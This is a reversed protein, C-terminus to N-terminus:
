HANDPGLTRPDTISGTVAAAACAAASALYISASSRGMRAKFNRNATSMVTAGDDPIVGSTGCCAGCGPPTVVAGLASLRALSGDRELTRQVERSAPTVVLQVGPKVGAGARELVGLAAHIDSVRGGTCTGIFVMHVPQGSAEAIDSVHDPAHPRAVKPAISALDLAVERAFRTDRDSTVAGPFISAKAGMEVGMSCIVLRDELSLGAVAPGDFELAQYSAGEAGMLGVLHLAIDKASVSEQWAGTLTVKITEPVRLWVQGTIMAGALDSSGVGTAFANLAGCTVTHSDAGIVLDGSSVLGREVAVQHSIGDGVELVTVGFRQGFARIREHFARTAPISPPSYHDLAFMVRTPDFVRDGGMREFYDITMPGSADTGLVRDVRCVVVDGARADRGAKASLIKESVTRGVM